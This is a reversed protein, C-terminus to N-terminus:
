HGRNMLIAVSQCTDSTGGPSVQLGAAPGPRPWASWHLDLSNTCSSRMEPKGRKQTDGVQKRAFYHHISAMARLYHASFLVSKYYVLQGARRQEPMRAGNLKLKDSGVGRAGGLKSWTLSRSSINTIRWFWNAITLLRGIVGPRISSWEAAEFGQRRGSTVYYQGRRRWWLNKPWKRGDRQRHEQEFISRTSEGDFEEFFPRCSDAIKIKSHLKGRLSSIGKCWLSYSYRLGLTGHEYSFSLGM